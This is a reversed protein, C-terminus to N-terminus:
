KSLKMNLYTTVFSIKGENLAQKIYDPAKVEELMSELDKTSKGPESASCSQEDLDLTVSDGLSYGQIYSEWKGSELDRLTEVVSDTDDNSDIYDIVEDRVVPYSFPSDFLVKNMCEQIRDVPNKGAEISAKITDKNIKNDDFLNLVGDKEVIGLYGSGNPIAYLSYGKGEYVEPKPLSLSKGCKGIFDKWQELPAKDEMSHEMYLQAALTGKESDTLNNILLDESSEENLKRMAVKSAVSKSENIELPDSDTSKVEVGHDIVVNVEQLDPSDCYPCTEFEDDKTVNGIIAGCNQCILAGYVKLNDYDDSDGSDDDSDDHDDSDDDGSDDDGSDDGDSDEHDDSDDGSDDDDDSETIGEPEEVPAYRSEDPQSGDEAVLDYLVVPALVNGDKDVWNGNLEALVAAHETPNDVPHVCYLKFSPDQEAGVPYSDSFETPDTIESANLYIIKGTVPCITYKGVESPQLDYSKGDIEVSKILNDQSEESLNRLAKFLNSM